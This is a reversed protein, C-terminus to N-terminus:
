LKDLTDTSARNREERVSPSGLVPPAPREIFIAVNLMLLTLL